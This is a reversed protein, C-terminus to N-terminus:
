KYYITMVFPWMPTTSLTWAGTELILWILLIKCKWVLVMPRVWIQFGQVPLSPFLWTPARHRTGRGNLAASGMEYHFTCQVPRISSVTRYLAYFYLYHLTWELEKVSKPRLPFTSLRWLKRFLLRFDNRGKFIIPWENTSSCVMKEPM